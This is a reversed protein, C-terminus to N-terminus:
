IRYPYNGKELYKNKLWLALLPESLVYSENEYYILSLDQLKNLSNSLSGSTVNLDKAIDKRRKPEDILSIIINKEKTTLRNWLNILDSALASISNKFEEKIKTKNLEEDPPLLKAFINIYAPIGSTYNYFTKFGEETFNLYNAKENLYNRTTDISFEKLEITLMRGGFAGQKGAIEYILKDHLSMSGTFVYAVNNQNQIYSRLVWLFSDKYEGLEKIIQFEDILIIVGKTENKYTKYIEEPLNFVFDKLKNQDEESQILPLPIKSSSIDKISFNHTKFYKKIKENLTNLDKKECERIIETYYHNLIGNISMHNNQYCEAKSFDIYVVIYEEDLCRKIKKLFVTKGISRIGTLLLNPAIEEETTKLFRLLSDIEETRNYFQTDNLEQTDGWPITSM